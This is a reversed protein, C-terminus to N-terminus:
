WRQNRHMLQVLINTIGKKESDGVVTDACKQLNLTRIVQEVRERKEEVSVHKPLRLLASMYIAERVTQTSLIFDDQFVFGSIKAMEKGYVETGNVCVSGSLEGSRSEGALVNLLSTKGAGSAGMVATM